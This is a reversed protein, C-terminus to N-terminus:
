KAQRVNEYEQFPLLSRLLLHKPMNIISQNLHAQTPRLKAKQVFINTAAGGTVRSILFRSELWHIQLTQRLALNSLKRFHYRQVVRKTIPRRNSQVQVLTPNWLLRLEKCSRVQFKKLKRLECRQLKVVDISVVYIPLKSYIQIDNMTQNADVKKVRYWLEIHM